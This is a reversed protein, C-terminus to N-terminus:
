DERDSTARRIRAELEPPAPESDAPIGRRQTRRQRRQSERTRQVQETLEDMLAAIGALFNWGTHSAYFIGRNTHLRAEVTADATRHTAHPEFHLSLLSPQVHRSIRRLGAAVLRDIETLTAPDSSGRLGTIQVYVDGLREGQASAAGVALGLLDSQAVVAVPGTPDVVFVSSVDERTMRRAAEVASTGAPVTVAPSHMITGIEVDYVSGGRAADRKGGVTPRWLVRALDSVGVAGVLHGKRDLVPFPHEELLRIQALLQRIPDNEHLPHGISRSIEDVQHDPIQRLDPFARVLNTRSVIGLLEGRRGVVPAARLGTSLLQEALEPYPTAPTVLPPILLLHEVKTSFSLNARRAISEFTIMGILKSGRLVPLEHFGGSSMKGLAHSLLADHAVTVPDKAMLTGATPWVASM